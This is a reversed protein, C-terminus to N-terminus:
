LGTYQKTFNVLTYALDEVLIDKKGGDNRMPSAVELQICNLRDSYHKVTFGGNVQGTETTSANAPSITFKFVEGFIGLNYRAAQLLGVLGRRKFLDDRNFGTLLTDGNKTGIYIDAPDSEITGTGHMDYLFGTTNNTLIHDTYIRIRKHYEDYFKRADKDVFACNNNATRSPRNADIYKRSFEAIVVYPSEGWVEYMRQAVRRTIEALAVDRGAKFKNAGTCDDPTRDKTRERVNAPTEGGDHPCTLLIPLTGRHRSVLNKKSYTVTRGM